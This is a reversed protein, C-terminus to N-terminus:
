ASPMFPQLAAAMAAAGRLAKQAFDLSLARVLAGTYTMAQAAMAHRLARGDALLAALAAAFFKAKSFTIRVKVVAGADGAHRPCNAAFKSAKDARAVYTGAGLCGGASPRFGEKKIVQAVDWSTGHYLIHQEPM